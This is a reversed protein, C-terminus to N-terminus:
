RMFSPLQMTKNPVYETHRAELNYLEAKSIDSMIEIMEKKMRDHESQKRRINELVAMEAESLIVHVDVQKTQGFRWCRRVAQYFQEFSDSLGSFVMAHCNQWNMGFGCISPKSVLYKVDGNAFGMMATEKHDPKDSGKVEVSEPIAKHLMESEYNYDCWILCQEEQLAIKKSLEIRKEASKKRAQRRETLTEAIDPFLVGEDPDSQLVHTQINLEPLKFMSGDFGLNDPNDIMMSWTAMWRFFDKEAHKKLRWGIREKGMMDNIFFTSLMETRPMIGLFEATTGIETFDNPSPTATCCLRNPTRSFRYQLDKTTKGSYSKLISSEDLVIGDFQGTDFKHIKEYNTINIGKQVDEESEVLHCAIGFKDAEKATQKSVALPALILVKGDTHKCVADAWALQQITKGMGTDEFLACRGKRLAWRVIADQYDFLNPNLEDPEFGAHIPQFQKSRLFEEYTM